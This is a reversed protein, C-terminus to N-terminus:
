CYCNSFPIPIMDWFSISLHIALNSGELDRIFPNASHNPLGLIPELDVLPIGNQEKRHKMAEQARPKALANSGTHSLTLMARFGLINFLLQTTHISHSHFSHHHSHPLINPWFPCRVHAKPNPVGAQKLCHETTPRQVNSTRTPAGEDNNEKQALKNAIYKHQIKLNQIVSMEMSTSLFAYFKLEGRNAVHFM